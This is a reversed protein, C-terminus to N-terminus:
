LRLLLLRKVRSEPLRRALWELTRVVFRYGLLILPKVILAIQWAKMNRILERRRQQATAVAARRRAGALCM